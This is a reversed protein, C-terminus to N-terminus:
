SPCRVEMRSLPRGDLHVTLDWLGPAPCAVFGSRGVSWDGDFRAQQACGSAGGVSMRPEPCVEALQRGQEGALHVTVDEAPLPREARSILLRIWGPGAEDAGEFGHATLSVHAMSGGTAGAVPTAQAQSALWLYGTTITSAVIALALLSGALRSPPPGSRPPGRASDPMGTGM